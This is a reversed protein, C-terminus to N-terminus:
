GPANSRAATAKRLKLWDGFISANELWVTMWLIMEEREPSPKRRAALRAHERSRIVERRKADDSAPCGILNLFTREFAELSDQRVGEVMPDLPVGSDRLLRRFYSDSVPDLEQKLRAATAADVLAPRLRDLIEQLRQRKGM